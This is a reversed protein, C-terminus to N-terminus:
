GAVLCSIEALRMGDSLRLLLLKTTGNSERVGLIGVTDDKIALLSVPMQIVDTLNSEKNQIASIMERGRRTRALIIAGSKSDWTCISSYNRPLLDFPEPIGSTDGGSSWWHVSLPMLAKLVTEAGEYENSLKSRFFSNGLNETTSISIQGMQISYPSHVYTLPVFLSTPTAWVMSSDGFRRLTCLKKGVRKSV